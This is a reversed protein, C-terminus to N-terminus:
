GVCKYSEVQKKLTYLDNTFCHFSSVFFTMKGMKVSDGFSQDRVWQALRIAMYLDNKLHRVGDCSRLSYLLHLYGHRQIFHWGLSCPIREGELSATIDEPLFMPLFAQRSVPNDKLIQVVGSLDGNKYRFGDEKVKSFWFREPYTHSFKGGEKDSMYEGSGGNQWMLYSPPPNMPEGSVRELFHVEAWVSDDLGLDKQLDEKTNPMITQFNLFLMEHMENCNKSNGTQVGQWIPNEVSRGTILLDSLAKQYALSPLPYIKM